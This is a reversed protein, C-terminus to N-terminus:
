KNTVPKGQQENSPQASNNNTIEKVVTNQSPPLTINM